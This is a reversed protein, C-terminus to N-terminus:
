RTVIKGSSCFYPFGFIIYEPFLILPIMSKAILLIKYNWITLFGLLSPIFRSTSNQYLISSTQWVFESTIWVRHLSVIIRYIYIYSQVYIYIYIYIHNFNFIILILICIFVCITYRCNILKLCILLTKTLLVLRNRM